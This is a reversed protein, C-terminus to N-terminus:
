VDIVFSRKINILIFLYCYIYGMNFLFLVYNILWYLRFIKVDMLIIKERGFLGLFMCSYVIRYDIFYYM